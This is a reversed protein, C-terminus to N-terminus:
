NDTSADQKVEKRLLDDVTCGLVAAVDRLRGTTPNCLGKEWQSVASATVGLARALEGQPIRQETRIKKINNM